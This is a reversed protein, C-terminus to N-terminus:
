EKGELKQIRNRNEDIREFATHLKSDLETFKISLEQMDRGATRSNEQVQDLQKTLYDLKVNLEKFSEAVRIEKSTDINTYSKNDRKITLALMLAPVVLALISIILAANM